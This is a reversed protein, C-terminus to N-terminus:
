RAVFKELGSATEVAMEGGRNVAGLFVQQLVLVEDRNESLFRAPQDEVLKGGPDFDARRHLVAPRIRRAGVAAGEMRRSVLLKESRADRRSEPIEAIRAERRISLRCGASDPSHYVALERSSLQLNLM